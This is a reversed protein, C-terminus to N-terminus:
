ALTSWSHSFSRSRQPSFCYSTLGRGDTRFRLCPAKKMDNRPPSCEGGQVERKGVGTPQPNALTKPGVRPPIGLTAARGRNKAKPPVDGLGGPLPSRGRWGRQGGGYASPKGAAQTGSTAPNCPTAARGRRQNQPPVGGVGGAMPAKGGQVGRKGVGTPKPNALPKPGVRPL